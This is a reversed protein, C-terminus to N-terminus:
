GRPLLSQLWAKIADQQPVPALTLVTRYLGDGDYECKSVRGFLPAPRDDVLHVAVVLEREEYCLRRSRFVIHNRSIECSKGAWGPGPRGRGDLETLDLEAKFPFASRGTAGQPARITLHPSGGAPVGTERATTPQTYAPSKISVGPAKLSQDTGSVGWMRWVARAGSCNAM